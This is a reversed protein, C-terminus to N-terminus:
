KLFKLLNKEKDKVKSGLILYTYKKGKKLIAKDFLKIKKSDDQNMLNTDIFGKLLEYYESSNDANIVVILENPDFPKPADPDDVFDGMFLYNDDEDFPIGFYNSIDYQDYTRIDSYNDTFYDKAKNLDFKKSNFIKFLLIVVLVIFLLVCGIIIIKKNKM